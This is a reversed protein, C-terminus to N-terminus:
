AYKLQGTKRLQQPQDEVCGCHASAGTAGGPTNPPQGDTFFQVNSKCAM